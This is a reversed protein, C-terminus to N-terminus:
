KQIPCESSVSPIQSESHNVGLSKKQHFYYLLICAFNLLVSFLPLRYMGSIVILIFQVFPILIFLKIKTKFRIRIFLVYALPFLHLLTWVHYYLEVFFTQKDYISIDLGLTLVCIGLLYMYIYIRFWINANILRNQM